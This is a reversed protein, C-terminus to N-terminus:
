GAPLATSAAGSVAVGYRDHLAAAGFATAAARVGAADTGTIMWTPAQANDRTAAILGAGPGLRRVVAGDANLLELSGGGAAFRAYVGSLRPGAQVVSALLTDRLDAWTGVLVGITAQGSGTGLQQTAALVGDAALTSAVRRCARAADSACELTTPFRRGLHGHRFPEPFAGVVAPVFAAAGAAHLDWWIQDGAHVVPSPRQQAAQRATIDPEGVGNVYHSWHQHPGATVGDIARVTAGPGTVVRAQRQLLQLATLSRSSAPVDIDRLVRAGFDRTILIRVGATGAHAALGCGATALALGALLALLLPRPSM